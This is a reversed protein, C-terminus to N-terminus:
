NLSGTVATIPIDYHRACFQCDVKLTGDPEVMERLSEDPMGSLTQILREENCTCRDLLSRPT